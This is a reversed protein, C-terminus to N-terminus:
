QMVLAKKQFVLPLYYFLLPNDCTEDFRTLLERRDLASTFPVASKGNIKCCIYESGYLSESNWNKDLCMYM